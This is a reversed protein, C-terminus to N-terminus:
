QTHYYFQDLMATNIKFALRPIPVDIWEDLEMCREFKPGQEVFGGETVKIFDNHMLNIFYQLCLLPNGTCKQVIKKLIVEDVSGISHELNWKETLLKRWKDSDKDNKITKAYDIIRTM